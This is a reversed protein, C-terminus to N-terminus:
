DNGSPVRPEDLMTQQVVDLRASADSRRLRAQALLMGNGMSVSLDAHYCLCWMNVVVLLATVFVYIGRHGGTNM